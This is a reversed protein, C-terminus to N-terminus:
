HDNMTLELLRNMPRIMARKKPSLARDCSHACFDSDNYTAGFNWVYMNFNNQPRLTEQRGICSAEQINLFKCQNYPSTGLFCCVLNLGRPELADRAIM